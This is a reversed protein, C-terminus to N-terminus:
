GTKPKWRGTARDLYVRTGNRDIGEQPKDPDPDLLTMLDILIGAEYARRELEARGHQAVQEVCRTKTCSGNECAEETIPCPFGRSM